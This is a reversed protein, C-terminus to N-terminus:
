LRRLRRRRHQARHRQPDESRDRLNLADVKAWQERLQDIDLGKVMRLNYAHDTVAIYEYGLEAAKARNEELSSRSDTSNTHLHMDSRVDRLELLRPLRHELAAEIEGAAHRIEPPPTDMGLLGYVEEENAGGLRETEAGQDDVRFVGYENIKLHQKKALERLAINHAQGRHLVAARRRVARPRGRTRGGTRGGDHACEDQDGRQRDRPGRGADRSRRDDGCGAGSGLRTHRRRRDDGADESAFGRTRRARCVPSARLTELVREAIPLADMLMTRGHTRLYVDVGAAINAITKARFGEVQTLRGEDVANELDAVSAVGLQEYLARARVPGVGPVKMVEALSAPYRSIADEYEAFTGTALIQEVAVALKKGIGPVETLRGEEAMVSLQEHWARVASAAKHYSLFRFKDVGAIELLDGTTDLLQAIAVNDFEPM